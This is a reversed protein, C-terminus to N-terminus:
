WGTAARGGERGTEGRGDGRKGREASAERVGREREARRKGRERESAAAGSQKDREREEREEREREREERERERETHRTMRCCRPTRSRAFRSAGQQASQDREGKEQYRTCGEAASARRHKALLAGFKFDFKFVHIRRRLEKEATGPSRNSSFPNFVSCPRLIDCNESTSLEASSSSPAPGAQKAVSQWHWQGFHVDDRHKVM